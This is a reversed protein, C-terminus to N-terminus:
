IWSPVSKLFPGQLESLESLQTEMWNIIKDLGQIQELLGAWKTISDDIMAKTEIMKSALNSWEDQLSALTQNILDHVAPATNALVSQALEVLNQVKVSGEEKCLLLDQITELKADLDKQSPATLDSCYDIKNKVDELWEKCEAVKSDFDEHTTYYQQWKSVLDKIKQVIQQYKIGLESVQSGSGRSGVSKNLQQSRETVADIELEKARIEGQLKKLNDYEDKKDKATPKLDVLHLKTDTDRIWTLIEDKLAEYDSWGQLRNEIAKITNLINSQLAAWEQQSNDIQSRINGQGYNVTGPIVKDGLDKIRAIRTEEDPLSDQLNKLRKLNSHLTVRELDTDAWLTITNNTADMWEHGDLVAKSYQQHSSVIGEYREVFQQARKLIKDHQESLIALQQDTNENHEPLNEVKDCLDLIDQQHALADHLLTRYIQLQARKEDLTAKLELETPLQQEAQKLWNKIQDVCDEFSSWRHLKSKLDRSTSNIGDYLSELAQQLEQLQASVTERGEPSTSGYLKEGLEVTNNLLLTASPQQALLEELVTSSDVLVSRAGAKIKQKCMNFRTQAAAIWDSCQRYKENYLKHDNLSQECKKVVDKTTAQVSQFRSIIQQVNVSIRTEGSNQMLETSQDSLKDFEAENQKLNTLLAQYKELHEQKEEITAKLAYNKLTAETETLWSLLRELSSEYDNWQKLKDELAFKTDNLSAVYKDLDFKMNIVDRHHELEKLTITGAPISDQLDNVRNLRDQLVQKNGSYDSYNELKDWLQKQFDQHTKQLDYFQQYVDLFQELQKIGNQANSLLTQYRDNISKINEDINDEKGGGSLQAVTKAKEAVGEIIRKYSSIEQLAAKHKLLKSKVEQISNYASSDIQIAKEMNSLWALTQQLMDQYSSLQQSQVNKLKQQELIGEQLADWRDKIRRLENRITERGTAATAPYLKEGLLIVSNLKHEGQEKESLLVQLRNSKAEVNNPLEDHQLALLHEELPTLWSSLEELKDQYNRHDDVVNQWKNIVDKTQAHLTQYRNSIQSLIPKIRQVESTQFLVHGNDIFSDIEREKAGVEEKENKYAKLQLEKESLTSCLPQDRFKSEFTTFWDNLKRLNDEFREWQELGEYQNSMEKDIAGMHQNLLNHLEGVEKEIEEIGKPSTSKSVISAIEKIKDLLNQGEKKNNKLAKIAELRKSIDSKEGTVDNYEQLKETEATLWDKFVNVQSNYTNHHDVCEGLNNLLGESKNVIEKFLQKISQLYINLSKDKTQDVLQQAKDCVSDVLLQHSTIEQHMIKHNQLQARKEQLTAKLETQHYMAKEVNKLWKTLQEQTSTFDSFQALCQELKNSANQLDDSFGDWITRLNRLQQRIIERGDPSTHAYLKEGEEMLNEFQESQRNREDILDKLNRQRNQIVEIDGIVHGLSHLDDQKESLWMVFSAYNENFAKHEEVFDKYKSIGEKVANQLSEYRTLIQPTRSHLESNPEIDKAQEALSNFDPSKGNIEEQLVKLKDLHARKTEETSRLSQNKVQSEKQKLWADLDELLGGFEKHKVYLKSIDEKGKNCVNLFTNWAQVQSEYSKILAPHGDPSTELLVADLQKKCNELIKDGEEKNALLNELVVLKSETNEVFASYTLSTAEAVLTSLWSRCKEISHNFNEHNDTYTEFATVRANVDDSLRKYKELSDHFGSDGDSDGLQEIKNKLQELINKHLNVDQALSKYQHLTDKKEQLTPKLEVKDGLKHEADSIWLQVQHLSDEFSHRQMLIGEVRKYITNVKDILAGSKDRLNRLETRIAEKNEPIIGSFLAEGHEMATNLLQQGMERESAFNKLEELTAENPKSGRTTYEGFAKVKEEAESLWDEINKISNYYLQKYKNLEDLKELYNSLFKAVAQYRSNLHQAFQGVRSDPMEKIIADSLGILRKIEDECDHVEKQLNTIELIKDDLKNLDAQTISETRVKNETDKLWSSITESLKEYDNHQILNRELLESTANYAHKLNELELDLHDKEATMLKYSEPTEIPELLKLSKQLEDKRAECDEIGAQIARLANLKVELNYKDSAPEPQCWQIKEKHTAILRQLNGYKENHYKKLFSILTNEIKNANSLVGDYRKKVLQQEKPLNSESFSPYITKMGLIQQEIKKIDADCECLNAKLKQCNLLREVIKANDGSLDECKIIEERIGAIKNGANKIDQRIAKEKNGYVATVKQLKEAKQQIDAFQEDLLKELTSIMPIEKDGGLQILQKHKNPLSQKLSQYAPLDEKYKALRAQAVEVENPKEAAANLGSSQENLWHLLKTKTDEIHQWVITQGEATQVIQLIKEYVSSWNENVEKIESKIESDINPIFDAKKVINDGKSELKTLFAKTKKLAELAKKAKEFNVNAQIYDTPTEITNCIEDVKEIEKATRGKLDQFEKWAFIIDGFKLKETKIKELVGDCKIDLTSITGQIATANPLDEKMLQEGQKQLEERIPTIRVQNELLQNVETTATQLDGPNVVRSKIQQLSKEVNDLNDSIQKQLGQFSNWHGQLKEVSKLKEVLQTKLNITKVEIDRVLKESTTPLGTNKDLITVAHMKDIEPAKQKWVILRNIIVDTENVLTQLDEPKAKQNEIQYKIHSLQRATEDHWNLLDTWKELAVKKQQLKDDLTQYAGALNTYEETLVNNEQPTNKLTLTKIDEYISNFMPQKESHEQLLAHVNILAADVKDARIEDVQAANGQLHDTWNSFEAMKAKFEHRALIVDSIENIKARLGESLNNIKGKLEQVRGRVAVAGEPTIGHSIVDSSQTLNILKAQQESIDKNFAKLDALQVELKDVDPADLNISQTALSNQSDAVWTELAKANTDFENWNSVLKDLKTANQLANDEIVTWRSHIADIEDPAHTKTVIQQSIGAVGQLKKLQSNCDNAFQKSQKQLLIAEELSAPKPVGSQVSVEAEEIWPKIEQIKTQYSKWNELDQVIAVSQHEVNKHIASMKDQLAIVEAKVKQAEPNSENMILEQTLAKLENTLDAKQLIESKLTGAKVIREELAVNDEMANLMKPADQVTWNQLEGFRDHFNIWKENLNQLHVVRTQVEEITTEIHKEIEEVETDFSPQKTPAAQQGLRCLERLKKLIDETTQRLHICLEQKAQLDAPINSFTYQGPPVRELEKHARTLLDLIESKHEEFNHWVTQTTKLKNLKDVTEQYADNWGIELAKVEERIFEPAATEKALEKGRQLMTMINPRQLDLQSVAIEQQHIMQNVNEITEPHHDLKSQEKVKKLLECVEHVEKKYTYCKTLTETKTMTVELSPILNKYRTILLELNRQEEIAQSEPCHSVLSDLTQVLWKMDERKADADQCIKQFIAKERDFDELSTIDTFVNQIAKDVEDMWGVIHHIREHYNSWKEPIRDLQERLKEVRVTITEWQYMAKELSEKLKKDDPQYQAYTVAIKELNELCRKTEMLHGNPAFFVKNRTIISEVNEQKNFAQQETVIEREIEKVYHNFATEDLRFELRMLHLPAFSLIEKWKTQLREVSQTIPKQQDSPLCTKLDQSTQVLDHIWRENVSEFFTKHFEVTKRTDIHKESILQEAKSLWSSIVRECEGFNYWCRIGEQMKQEWLHANKIVYEFRDNLKQMKDKMELIDPNTQQDVAKEITKLVKNKSDLMSQYYLTRVFFQKHRELQNHLNEKGGGLTLESLLTEADDLWKSIERQGSELSEQQVLLQNFLHIQAPILARIRVLNEKENKLINMMKDVEDRSLDQILSQFTKSISKFLDEIGKVEGQLQLLNEGHTRIKELSGLQQNNLLDEAKRLWNSLVEVGARFEKRNRLIDGAHSYKNVVPYLKDWRSTMTAFHERLEIAIKDECTAILFSVTDGLLQYNDKWVSIDQFFEMREEESLKVSEESKDLWRDFEVALTDWRRWYAVVEELMSQVCRLEMSVNKWREATDRLFKDIEQRETKDINGDRQYEEIVAQMDIFAKNFEQFIHNRSVFNRYQDLLQIVKDVRGYKVTWGKLKTETLQLFAILCCKHELFKLRIRRQAAKPGIENLRLAMNTLQASPVEKALPSDYAQQFRAQVNPLDAFFAKHEELKKSIITATEENMATPIDDTYVLKEAKALWEGIFKLDGPLNFDLLWLWYRMQIELQNWLRSVSFWSEKTISIIGQSEILTRLKNYIIAKEDVEDKFKQYENYDLPLSNTQQLHELYQTKKLLWSMLENFEDQIAAIADPGTSKPEPYKHLFQAVYTMISKEDPKPVDVDEPDLLKTIGLDKEAVDFATELRVKNSEQRLETLNILNAKIADIIALFGIGDRWSAGFDRIEIGSDGPLANAVWQLLTKRAGQRWRDKTASSTTGASELSSTSEWPGLYELARSNEEIQFYLIITWILGLVVPPRGDVLDTANINVLKIRKSALFQLATNANSLFHPRRLVRGREVPLKDGSLVELLALLKTGDKLDEILDEVRLPPVRKALYSNIWNVFTKKQVREQEDRIIAIHNDYQSRSRVYELKSSGSHFSQNKYEHYWDASSSTHKSSNSGSDWEDKLMEKSPTRRLSEESPFRGSLSTVSSSKSQSMGNQTQYASDELVREESESPTRSTTRVTKTVQQVTKKVNVFKVTKSGSAGDSEDITKVIVEEYSGDPFFKQHHETVQHKPSSLPTHRLTVHELQSTGVNRRREEEFQRELEDVNLSEQTELSGSKSGTWVKEFFSVRDKLRKASGSSSSPSGLPHKSDDGQNKSTDSM